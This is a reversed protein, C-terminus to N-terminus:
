IDSKARMILKIRNWIKSTLPIIRKSDIPKVFLTIILASILGFIFTGISFWWTEWWNIKNVDVLVFEGPLTYTEGNFVQSKITYQVFPDYDIDLDDVKIHHWKTYHPESITQLPTATILVTQQTGSSQPNYLEALKSYAYELTGKTEISTSWYFDAGNRNINEIKLGFINETALTDHPILTFILIAVVLGAFVGVLWRELKNV